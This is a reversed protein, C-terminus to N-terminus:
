FESERWRLTCARLRSRTRADTGSDASLRWVSSLWIIIPPSMTVFVWVFDVLSVTANASTVPPRGPLQGDLRRASGERGWCHMCRPVLKAALWFALALVASDCTRLVLRRTTGHFYKDHSRNSRTAAM